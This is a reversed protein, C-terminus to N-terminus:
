RAVHTVGLQDSCRHGAGGDPQMAPALAPPGASVRFARVGRVFLRNKIGPAGQGRPGLAGGRRGCTPPPAGGGREPHTRSRSYYDFYSTFIKHLHQPRVNVTAVLLKDLALNVRHAM